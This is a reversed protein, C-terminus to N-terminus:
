PGAPLATLTLAAGSTVPTSPSVPASPVAPSVIPAPSPQSIALPTYHASHTSPTQRPTIHRLLMRSIITTNTTTTHKHAHRQFHYGCARLTAAGINHRCPRCPHRCLCFPCSVAQSNTTEIQLNWASLTNPLRNSQTSSPSTSDTQTAKLTTCIHM